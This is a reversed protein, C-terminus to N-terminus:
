SFRIVHEVRLMSETRKVFFNSSQSDHDDGVCTTYFGKCDFTQM